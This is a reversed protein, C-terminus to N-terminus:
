ASGVAVGEFTGSRPSGPGVDPERDLSVTPRISSMGPAMRRLPLTTRRAIAEIRVAITIQGRGAGTRVRSGADHPRGTRPRAVLISRIAKAWGGKLRLGRHLRSWISGFQTFAIDNGGRRV